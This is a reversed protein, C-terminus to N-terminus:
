IGTFSIFGPLVVILVVLMLYIMMPLLLRTGAEEGRARAQAKREEFSEVAERELLAGMGGAGQRINRNLLLALRRYERLGCNEGFKEYASIEGEGEKIKSYTLCMEEYAYREDGKKREYDKVVREWARFIPMGAGTLIAIQNVIQSYDMKLQRNREELQRKLKQREEYLVFFICLGGVLAIKVLLYQEDRYWRLSGIETTAPLRREEEQSSEEEASALAEKIGKAFTEEATLLPPYVMVTFVREAEQERYTMKARIEVPTGEERTNEERISGDPNLVQYNDFSWELEILGDAAESPLSLAYEIRDASDNDGLIQKELEEGTKEFLSKIEEDSLRKEQVEVSIQEKRGAEEEVLMEETYSGGGAEKRKLSYVEEKQQHSYIGVVLLLFGIAVSLYLLSRIEKIRYNRELEEKKQRPYIARLEKGLEPDRGALFAGIRSRYIREALGNGEKRKQENSM